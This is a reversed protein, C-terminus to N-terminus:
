GEEEHRPTLILFNSVTDFFIDSLFRSCLATKGVGGDGLVVIKCLNMKPRSTQKSPFSM